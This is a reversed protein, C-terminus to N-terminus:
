GQPPLPEVPAHEHEVEPQQKGAIWKHTADGGALVTFTTVLGGVLTPLIPALAPLFCSAIGLGIISLGTAAAAGVLLGQQILFDDM